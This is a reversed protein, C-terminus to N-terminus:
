RRSGASDADFCNQGVASSPCTPNVRETTRDRCPVTGPQESVAVGQPWVCRLGISWLLNYFLAINTAGKQPKSHSVCSTTNNPVSVSNNNNNNNNNFSM